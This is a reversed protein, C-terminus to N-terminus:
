VQEFFWKSVNLECTERDKAPEDNSNLCEGETIVVLKKQNINRFEYRCPSMGTGACFVVERWGNNYYLIHDQGEKSIDSWRAGHSQWGANFIIERAKSYAMGERLEKLSNEKNTTSNDNVLADLVEKQTKCLKKKKTCLIKIKKSNTLRVCDTKKIMGSSKVAAICYEGNGKMLIETLGTSKDSELVFIDKANLSIGLLLM